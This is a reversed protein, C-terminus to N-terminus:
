GTKKNEPALLAHVGTLGVVGVPHGGQVDGQLDDVRGATGEGLLYCVSYFNTVTKGDGAPILWVRVPRSLKILSM